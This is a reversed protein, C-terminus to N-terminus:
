GTASPPAHCSDARIVRQFLERVNRSRGTEADHMIRRLDNVEESLHDLTRRTVVPQSAPIRMGRGLCTVFKGDRTVVLFPGKTNDDLSLAVRDAGEPLHARSLLYRVLGDDRYLGLAMEAHQHNLRDIRRLFHAAHGRHKETIHTTM